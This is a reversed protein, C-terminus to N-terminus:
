SCWKQNHNWQIDTQLYIPLTMIGNYTKWKPIHRDTFLFPPDHNWQIDTQLYLPLM